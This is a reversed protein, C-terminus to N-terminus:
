RRRNKRRKARKRNILIVYAVFLLILAIVAAVIIKFTTSSFFATVRDLVYLMTSREVDASAVLDLEYELEDYRVKLKGLVDGAKVPATVGEELTYEMKLDDTTYTNPLMATINESPRVVVTDKEDGLRVPVETIPMTSSLLVQQSWNAAGWNFLKITEAFQLSTGEQKECGLVVSYYTYDGKVCGAVLCLGAPTTTGTKIGIAGEYYYEGTSKRSLLHNTTFKTTTRDHKNTVPLIVEDEAVLMAITENEMAAKAIILLDRATTYHEEHHLGHPNMFNTSKCGLERAKNNMLEVFGDLSGSVHIALANAADNGSGILLYRMLDMFAIEEGALLYSASGLEFLGDVAEATVTVVDQPNGYEMAVIATMLKTTSAPFLKMDADQELLVTDTSLEYLIAAKAAVHHEPAPAALAPTCCLVAALVLCFIKKFM